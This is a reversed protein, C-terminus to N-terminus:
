LAELFAIMRGAARRWASRAKRAGAEDMDLYDRRFWIGWAMRADRYPTGLCLPEGTKEKIPCGRCKTYDVLSPNYEGCFACSAADPQELSTPSKVSRLRKWHAVCKVRLAENKENVSYYVVAKRM